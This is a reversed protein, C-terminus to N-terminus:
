CPRARARMATLHTYDAVTAMDNPTQESDGLDSLERARTCFSSYGAVPNSLAVRTDLSSIFITQWGGGSLGTVALREPDANPHALLLDLGRQMSLYFVAIGSTGCLDIQNMRGHHFGAASLQGMGLWDVNLALMGRKAQNICRIQKYPVAKGPAGVHGNVNMIAPVKASLKEPEYLLAPIWLNPIAEYRLKKIRYGPGGPLTELWEVRTAAARWRAAEGRFIVKDFMEQRLRASCADWQAATAVSPMAPVRLECYRQVESTPLVSGVIERALLPGLGPADAALSPAVLAAAVASVLSILCAGRVGTM